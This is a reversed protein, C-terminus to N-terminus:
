KHQRKSGWLVFKMRWNNNNNNNNNNFSDLARESFNRLANSFSRFAVILKTKDTQRETQGDADFLAAGLPRIKILNSVQINKQFDTSFICTDNYHSLPVEYHVHFDIYMYTLIELRRLILFIESLNTSLNLVCKQHEFVEKKSVGPKQSIIHLFIIFGPLGCIVIHRLIKAHRIVLAVSVCQSYM